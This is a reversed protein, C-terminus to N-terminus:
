YSNKIHTFQKFFGNLDQLQGPHQLPQGAAGDGVLAPLATQSQPRQGVQVIHLPGLLLGRGGDFHQNEPSSGAKGADTRHRGAELPRVHPAAQIGPLQQVDGGDQTRGAGGPFVPRPLLFAGDGM